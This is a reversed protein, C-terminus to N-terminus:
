RFESSGHVHPTNALLDALKPASGKSISNVVKMIEKEYFVRNEDCDDHYNRIDELEGCFDYQVLSSRYTGPSISVNYAVINYKNFLAVDLMVMDLPGRASCYNREDFNSTDINHDELTVKFLNNYM